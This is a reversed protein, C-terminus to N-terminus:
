GRQEHVAARAQDEVALKGSRQLRMACRGCHRPFSPRLNLTHRTMPVTISPGMLPQVRRVSSESSIAVSYGTASQRLRSADSGRDGQERRRHRTGSAAVKGRRRSDQALRLRLAREQERLDESEWLLIATSPTRSVKQFLRRTRMSTWSCRSEMAGRCISSHWLRCSTRRLVRSGAYGHSPAPRRYRLGRPLDATPSADRPGARGVAKSCPRLQPAQRRHQHHDLEPLLRARSSTDQVKKLRSKKILRQYTPMLRSNAKNRHLIYGLKLLREPEIAFAYYTRGGM